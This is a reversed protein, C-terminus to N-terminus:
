VNLPTVMVAVEEIIALVVPVPLQNCNGLKDTGSGDFGPVGNVPTDLPFFGMKENQKGIVEWHAFDGPVLVNM